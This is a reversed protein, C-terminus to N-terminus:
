GSDRTVRVDYTDVKWAGEHPVLALVGTRHFTVPTGDIFSRVRLDISAVVVQAAGGAGTLVSLDAAATGVRVEAAPPFGDDVLAARDPGDLRALAAPTFLGALDGAPEGSELPRVVAAALYGDLAAQVAELDSPALTGDGAPHVQSAVVTFSTVAPPEAVTTAPGTLPVTPEAAPPGGGGRTCAALLLVGMGLAAVPRLM